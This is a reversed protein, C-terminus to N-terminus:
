KSNETESTESKAEAPKETTAEAPKEAPKESKTEATKEAPKEAPKEDAKDSAVENSKAAANEEARTKNDADEKKADSSNNDSGKKDTTSKSIKAEKNDKSNKDEKSEKDKSSSDKKEGESKKEEKKNKKESKEEIVESESETSPANDNINPRASFANMMQEDDIEIRDNEIAELKLEAEYKKIIETRRDAYIMRRIDDEVSEMPAISGKAVIDTITFYFVVDDAQMSQVKGKSLLNDYNRTRVTPLYSLFDSFTVWEATLDTIQLDHKETFAVIEQIDDSSANSLAERLTSKNRFDKPARVLVGRVKDHDLTFQHTHQRYHAKIQQETIETDLAEDIYYQDLQRMILSQRYDEVLRDIDGKSSLVKEARALKLRNLVWNDIYMKAFTTSDAGTLGEPMDALIDKLLLDNGDVSAVVRKQNNRSGFTDSSGCAVSMTAVILLIIHNIRKM